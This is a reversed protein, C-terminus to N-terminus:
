ARAHHSWCCCVISGQVFCPLASGEAIGAYLRLWDQDRLVGFLKYHSQEFRRLEDQVIRRVMAADVPVAAAGAAYAARILARYHPLDIDRDPVVSDAIADCEADTLTDRATMTGMGTPNAM